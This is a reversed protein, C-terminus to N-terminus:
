YTTIRPLKGSEARISHFDFALQLRPKGAGIAQEVERNGSGGHSESLECRSASHHMHDARRSERSFVFVQDLLRAPARHDDLGAIHAHTNVQKRSQDLTYGLGKVLFEIDLDNLHM